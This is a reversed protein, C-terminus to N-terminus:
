VKLVNGTSAYALSTITYKAYKVIKHTVVSNMAEIVIDAAESQGLFLLGLGVAFFRSISIDLQNAPGLYFSNNLNSESLTEIIANSIEENCKGVFILGLSLAAMAALEVSHATEVIIPILLDALNQSASGAYALGLGM